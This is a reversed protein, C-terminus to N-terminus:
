KTYNLNIIESIDTKQHAFELRSMESSIKDILGKRSTPTSVMPIIMDTTQAHNRIVYSNTTKNKWRMRKDYFREFGIKEYFSQAYSNEPLESKLFIDRFKDQKATRFYEAILAKGAGRINEKNNRGWTVLWDIETENRAANHRSSYVFKGNENRKLMNAILLGCPKDDHVAVLVKTKKWLHQPTAFIEKLTKIAEVFIDNKVPDNGLFREKHQVWKNVFAADDVDLSVISVRQIQKSKELCCKYQALMNAGFNVNNVNVASVIMTVNTVCLFDSNM